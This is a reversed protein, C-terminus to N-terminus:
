PGGWKVSGIVKRAEPAFVDFKGAMSSFVIIVADGRVDDLIIVRRERNAENFYTIQEGGSLSAINVCEAGCPGYSDKPLDEVVVEFQEGRAGGVTVPEPKSTQLDPHKQFWGVMDEPAKVVKLTGPKFVEEVNAFTIWGPVGLQGV